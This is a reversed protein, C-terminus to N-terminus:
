LGLHSLLSRFFLAIDSAHDWLLALVAVSLSLIAVLRDVGPHQAQEIQDEAQPKRPEGADPTSPAPSPFLRDAEAQLQPPIGFGQLMMRREADSRASRWDEWFDDPWSPVQRPRMDM